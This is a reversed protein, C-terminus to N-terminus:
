EIFSLTQAASVSKKPIFASIEVEQFGRSYALDLTINNKLALYSSEIETVSTKLNSLSKEAEGRKVINFMVSNLSYLYVGLVFALVLILMWFTSKKNIFPISNSIM